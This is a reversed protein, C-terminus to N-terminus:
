NFCSRDPRDRRQSYSVAINVVLQGVRSNDNSPNFVRSSNLITVMDCSCDLTYNNWLCAKIDSLLTNMKERIAYKPKPDEMDELSVLGELRYKVTNMYSSNTDQETIEDPNVMKINIMPYNNHDSASAEDVINVAQVDNYYVYGSPLPQGSISMLVTELEAEFITVLDM